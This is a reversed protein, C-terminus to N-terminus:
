KVGSHYQNVISVSSTDHPLLLPLVNGVMGAPSFGVSVLMFPVGVLLSATVM